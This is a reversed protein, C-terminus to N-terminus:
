KPLMRYLLADSKKKEEMLQKTREAIMIELSGAYKEMMMLVHDMLNIHRSLNVIINYYSTPLIFTFNM